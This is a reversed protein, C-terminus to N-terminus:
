HENDIFMICKTNHLNFCTINPAINNIIICYSQEIEILFSCKCVLDQSLIKFIYIFEVWVGCKYTNLYKYSTLEYLMFRESQYSTAFMM